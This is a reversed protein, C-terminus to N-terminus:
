TDEPMIVAHGGDLSTPERIDVRYENFEVPRTVGRQRTPGFKSPVQNSEHTNSCIDDRKTYERFAEMCEAIEIEVADRMAHFTKPFQRSSLDNSISAHCSVQIKTSFIYIVM